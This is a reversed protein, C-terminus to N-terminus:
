NQKTKMKSRYLIDILTSDQLEKIGSSHIPHLDEKSSQSLKNITIKEFELLPIPDFKFRHPYYEPEGKNGIQKSTRIPWIQTNSKEYGKTIRYMTMEEFYGQFRKMKWIKPSVRGGPKKYKGKNKGDKHKGLLKSYNKGPSFPGTFIVLDNEQFLKLTGTQSFTKTYGWTKSEIAKNWNNAESKSFYCIWTKPQKRIQKHKNADQIDTDKDMIKELNNQYWKLFDKKIFEKDTSILEVIIDKGLNGNDELCLVVIKDAKTTKTDHGHKLYDDTTWEVEIDATSGDDLYCTGLDPFYGKNDKPKYLIKNRNPGIRFKKYNDRCYEELVREHVYTGM